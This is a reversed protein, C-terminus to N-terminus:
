LVSYSKATESLRQKIISKLQEIQKSLINKNKLEINQSRRLSKEVGSILRQTIPFCPEYFAPEGNNVIHIQYLDENYYTEEILKILDEFLARRNNETVLEFSSKYILGDRNYNRKIDERYIELLVSDSEFMSLLRSGKLTLYIYDDDLLTNITNDTDKSIISKRIIRNNFLYDITADIREIPIYDGFIALINDRLVRRSIFETQPPTAAQSSFYGELYNMIIVSLVDCEKTQLDILINPIFIDSDDFRPRALVNSTNQQNFQIDKKGTYVPNEGCALTRVVNVIDFRYDTVRVTPYESCEIYSQCWVRNSLIMHLCDITARINLHCIETVTKIINDDLSAIIEFFANKALRWTEPNGPKETKSFVDNFRSILIEKVDPIQNKIIRSTENQLFNGYVNIYKHEINDNLFRFSHPRLSILLNVIPAKQTNHM